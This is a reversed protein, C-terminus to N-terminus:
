QCAIVGLSSIAVFSQLVMVAVVSVWSGTLPQGVKECMGEIVTSLDFTPGHFTCFKGEIYTCHWVAIDCKNNYTIHRSMIEAFDGMM